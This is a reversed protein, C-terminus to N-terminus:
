MSFCFCIQMQFTTTHEVSAAMQSLSMMLLPILCDLTQFKQFIRQQLFINWIPSLPLTHQWDTASTSSSINDWYVISVQLGKPTFFFLWCCFFIERTFLEMVKTSQRPTLFRVTSCSQWSGLICYCSCLHTFTHALTLINIHTVSTGLLSSYLCPLSPSYVQMELFRLQLREDSHTYKHLLRCFGAPIHPLTQTVHQKQVCIRCIQWIAACILWICSTVM